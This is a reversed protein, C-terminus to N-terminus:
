RGDRGGGDLSAWAGAVGGAGAAVRAKKKKKAAAVALEYEADDVVMTPKEEETEKDEWAANM